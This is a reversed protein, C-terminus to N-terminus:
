ETAEPNDSSMDLGPATEIELTIEDPIVPGTDLKESIRRLQDILKSRTTISSQESLEGSAVSEDIRVLEALIFARLFQLGGSRLGEDFANKVRKSAGGIMIKKLRKIEPTMTASKRKKRSRLGQTARSASTAPGQPNTM